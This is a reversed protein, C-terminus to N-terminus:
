PREDHRGPSENEVPLVRIDEVATWRRALDLAYAYAATWAGFRLDNSYWQPDGYTQIEIRLAPADFLKPLEEPVSADWGDSDVPGTLFVDGVIYDQFRLDKQHAWLLMTARANVPLKLNKGDGNLYMTAAPQELNLVELDGAVLDRYTNLDTAEIQQRRLPEDDDAPIVVSNILLSERQEPGHPQHEGGGHPTHEM